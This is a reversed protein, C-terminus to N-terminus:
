RRVYSPLIHVKHTRPAQDSVDIVQLLASLEHTEESIPPDHTHSQYTICYRGPYHLHIHNIATSDEWQLPYIDM